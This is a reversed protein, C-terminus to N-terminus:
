PKLVKKLVLTSGIGSGLWEKLPKGYPCPSTGAGVPFM